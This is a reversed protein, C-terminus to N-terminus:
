NSRFWGLMEQVMRVFSAANPRATGDGPLVLRSSPIGRAQLANYILDLQSRAMSGIPGDLVVFTSTAITAVNAIPWRQLWSSSAGDLPPPDDSARLVAARFRTTHGLLSAALTGGELYIRTSDVYGNAIVADIASLADRAGVDLLSETPVREFEGGYGSAGRVNLTLVLLGGGALGHDTPNFAVNAMAHPGTALRVLLPWRRTLDFEPPKVLWGQLATGDAAKWNLEEVEGLHVASRFDDNV